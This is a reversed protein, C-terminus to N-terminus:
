FTKSIELLFNPHLYHDIHKRRQAARGQQFITSVNLFPIFSSTALATVVPSQSPYIPWLAVLLLLRTSLIVSSLGPGLQLLLSFEQFWDFAYVRLIPCSSYLESGTVALLEDSLVSYVINVWTLSSTFFTPLQHNCINFTRNRSKIFRM